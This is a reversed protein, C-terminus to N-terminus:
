EFEINCTFPITPPPAIIIPSFLACTALISNANVPPGSTDPHEVRVSLISSTIIVPPGAPPPIGPPAAVTETLQECFQPLDSINPTTIVPGSGDLTSYLLLHFQEEPQIQGRKSSHQDYSVVTVNYAGSPIASALIFPPLTIQPRFRGPDHGVVLAGAPNNALSTFDILYEGADPTLPCASSGDSREIRNELKRGTVGVSNNGRSIYTNSTTIQNIPDVTNTIDVLVPFTRGMSNTLSFSLQSTPGAGVTFDTNNCTIVTPPTTQNYSDSLPYSLTRNFHWYRACAMGTEAAYFAYKSDRFTSAIILERTVASYLAYSATLIVSLILVSFLITFGKQM